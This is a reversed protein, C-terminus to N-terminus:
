PVDPDVGPGNVDGLYGPKQPRKRNAVPTYYRFISTMPQAEFPSSESAFIDAPDFGLHRLAEKAVKESEAWLASILAPDQLKWNDVVLGIKVVKGPNLVTVSGYQTRNKDHSM